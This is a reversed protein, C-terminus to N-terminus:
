KKAVLIIGSAFLKLDFYKFLNEFISIIMFVPVFFSFYDTARYYSKIEIQRFGTNKCLNEMAHSSCQNFFVPYGTVSKTEPRIYNILTKQLQPGIIRLIISYFHYKCPIYHMMIGDSQLADYMVKLSKTNDPVHELLTKSIILDFKKDLPKEVSQALFIDYIRYCNPRDDLDLGTYTYEKSKQLIPRDVGRAELIDKPSNDKIYSDIMEKLDNNYDESVGFFNPFKKELQRCYFRNLGILKRFM